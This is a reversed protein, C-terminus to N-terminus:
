YNFKQIHQAHACLHILFHICHGLAEGITPMYNTTFKLKSKTRCNNATQRMPMEPEPGGRCPTFTGAAFRDTLCKGLVQIIGNFHGLKEMLKSTKAQNLSTHTCM